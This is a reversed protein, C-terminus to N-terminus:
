KQWGAVLILFIRRMVLLAVLVFMPILDGVIEVFLGERPYRSLVRVGYMGHLKIIITHLQVIIITRLHKREGSHLNELLNARLSRISVSKNENGFNIADKNLGCDSSKSDM